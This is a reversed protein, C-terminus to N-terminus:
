RGRDRVRVRVEAMIASGRIRVNPPAYADFSVAREDNGAAGIFAGVDFDVVLGPPVIFRVNAMVATVDISCGPPILAYRLDVTVESMVAKIRLHQPVRWPGGRRTESMLGLLRGEREVAASQPEVFARSPSALDAVLSDIATINHSQGLRGLRWEFEDVTIVDYAFGDTLLRIARERADDLSPALPAGRACFSTDSHSARPDTVDGTRLYESIPTV